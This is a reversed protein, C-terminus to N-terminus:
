RFNWLIVENGSASALTKGDPSFAVSNVSGSHGTLTLLEKGELNWLTVTKYSGSALTKGDPSFAISNFDHRPSGRFTHLEEGELNWLKITSEYIAASALTKGDPSFAVSTVGERHGIFTHLEKGELNWLKVTGDWSASALTKGDPSFAVNSVSNSHGTLTLLEKGELNSLKMPSDASASALTKGVPNFAVNSVFTGQKDLSNFEKVGYLSQRLKAIAKVRTDAEIGTAGQLQGGAKLSEKLADFPQKLLVLNDSLQSLAEIESGTAKRTQRRSELGFAKSVFTGLVLVAIFGGVFLRRNRSMQKQKQRSVQIYEEDLDPQM